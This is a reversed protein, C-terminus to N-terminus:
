PSIRTGDLIRYADIPLSRDGETYLLIRVKEIRGEDLLKQIGSDWRGPKLGVWKPLFYGEAMWEARTKASNDRAADRIMDAIDANTYLKKM